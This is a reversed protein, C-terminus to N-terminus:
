RQHMFSQLHKRVSSNPSFYNLTKGELPPNKKYGSGSVAKLAADVFNDWGKEFSGKTKTKTTNEGGGDGQDTSHTSNPSSNSPGAHDTSAHNISPPFSHTAAFFSRLTPCFVRSVVRRSICASPRRKYCLTMSNGPEQGNKNDPAPPQTPPSSASGSDPTPHESLIHIEEEKMSLSAKCFTTKSRFISSSSPLLQSRSSFSTLFFSILDM